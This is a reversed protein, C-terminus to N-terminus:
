HLKVVVEKASIVCASKGSLAIKAKVKKREKDEKTAEAVMLWVKM